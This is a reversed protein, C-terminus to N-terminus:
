SEHSFAAKIIASEFTRDAVIKADEYLEDFSKYKTYGDRTHMRFEAKAESNKRPICYSIYGPDEPDITAGRRALSLKNYEYIYKDVCEMDEASLVAQGLYFFLERLSVNELRTEKGDATRIEVDSVYATKGDEVVRRVEFTLVVDDLNAVDKIHKIEM